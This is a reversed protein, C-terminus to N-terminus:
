ALGGAQKPGGYEKRERRGLAARGIAVQGLAIGGDNPPVQRHRLVDIEAEALGASVLEVLLRNQFVGGSLAVPMPGVEACASRALEVVVSAVAGHFRGAVATPPVGAGLDSVVARIVSGPDVVRPQTGEEITFRYRDGDTEALEELGIAAQGEYAVSDRVGCLAAVADFLRGVSSTRLTDERACLAAVAHWDPHRDLLGVAPLNGGFAYRLHAVAMRWPHRIAEVGGPMPVPALHAFRVVDAADGVLVEGGWATGDIGHGIGDFTIGIAPEAFRNDALCAALHAHHHQATMTPALDQAVAFKTSLYEPHMDHVVLAPEVGAFDILDAIAQEFAVLTEPNELDGLHPSLHASDGIALCVTSKLEAGVALVTPGDGELRVSRPVFGRARRLLQFDGAVSQGVSDDARRIIARDHGLVADVVDGALAGATADDVIIPAGSLNGSTCVLPAGVSEALLAHLGTAPLMVGLLGTGPAVSPAVPADGHARALVIPAESAALARAAVDDLEVLRRAWELDPVLLAFPKEDRRKRRRLTRVASELDARCVFQFGGVGKLALIAGTQLMQTARAVVDHSTPPADSAHLVLRPGCAPCCTAQAHFRRDDPDGFERACADCLPFAAMATRERDYPLESAVTYRPGCDTCCTFAYGFRRDAPDLLEDLCHGCLAVDPPIASPGAGAGIHSAQVEFRRENRRVDLEASDIRDVLALPPHQTRIRSIALDIAEPPGQLECWVGDTDNGVAGTLGLDRAVRFVFPRFGVGQVTGSIRFRRRVTADREPLHSNCM